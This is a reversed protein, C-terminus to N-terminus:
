QVQTNLVTRTASVGEQAVKVTLETLQSFHMIRAQMALLEQNSFRKGSYLIDNLFYDMKNIGANVERLMDVVVETGGPGQPGVELNAPLPDIGAGSMVDFTTGGMGLDSPHLGLSIALDEQSGMQDMVESFPQQVQEQLGGGMPSGLTGTSTTMPLSMGNKLFPDMGM